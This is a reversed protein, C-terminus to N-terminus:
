SPQREIREPRRPAPGARPATASAATMAYAVIQGFPMAAGSEEARRWWAPDVRARAEAIFDREVRVLLGLGFHEGCANAAGLLRAAREPEDDRIALAALGALSEYAEWHFGLKECLLLQRVFAERARAFDGSLLCGVGLITLISASDLPDGVVAVLAESEAHFALAEHPRGEELARYACNTYLVVLFRQNGVRRLLTAAEEVLPAREDVPVCPALIGLARAAVAEDGAARAHQFAEHAHARTRELDGTLLADSAVSCLADAIGAHDGARRYLALAHRSAVLGQEPEGVMFFLDSRGLQAEAQEAFAAQEGAAESAAGLWGLGEAAMHRIRWYKRLGGALRLALRPAADVAWGLAARVNEADADLMRLADREGHAYLSHAARQVLQLYFEAHRRRVAEPEPNEACRELAYARVVELMRLRPGGDAPHTQDLLHKDVLAELQQADVGTVTEAADYTAGGAFVSFDAFAVQLDRPLLRHSWDLTARLTRQRDPADRPGAGLAAPAQALRQALGETGFFRTQAAALELALPLGDLRACIQAIARAGGPGLAFRADYRRIAALLMATGGTREIEAATAEEPRPPVQLPPVVFRHEASLDLAERSTTLVTLKLCGGILDAVVGAADLLHEFNDIALLLRKDALCRRLTEPPSEGRLPTVALARAITSPVHEPREVGALEVWCAGASFRAALRETVALALRTKGVGGPGTITVLRIEPRELLESLARIDRERGITPTPQSPLAGPRLGAPADAAAAPVTGAGEAIPPQLSPAQMLIQTQLTQLAPGPELGLQDSLHARTRSYAALADAQRGSRYLALMLQAAFRERTPHAAVLQNLEGALRSHRGAALDADIRAELAAMRQEDLRAIETQAFSEFTLDALPPGRWLNLADRLMAAAREPEDGAMARQGEAVLGAFREADLEGPRVRLSYGAPTTTLADGDGLAKRLRSVHVHVTKVADVPAAEGWLALALREASVPENPHLLLMALVTRPKAGGLALLGGKSMVELRGLIRFEMESLSAVDTGM